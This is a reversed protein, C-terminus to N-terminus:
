RLLLSKRGDRMLMELEDSTTKDGYGCLHLLGHVCVRHLEDVFSVNFDAANEQVRDVSIFLDGSVLDGEAIIL